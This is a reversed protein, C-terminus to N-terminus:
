FHLKAQQETPLGVVETVLHLLVHHGSVLQIYPSSFFAVSLIPLAGGLRERLAEHEQDILLPLRYPGNLLAPKSKLADKRALTFSYRKVRSKLANKVRDTNHDSNSGGEALDTNTSSETHLTAINSCSTISSILILHPRSPATMVYSREKLPPLFRCPERACWLWYLVRHDLVM